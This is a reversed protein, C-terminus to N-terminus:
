GRAGLPVPPTRTLSAVAILAANFAVESLLGPAASKDSV